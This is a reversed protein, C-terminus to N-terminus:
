HIGVSNFEIIITLSVLFTKTGVKVYKSTLHGRSNNQSYRLQQYPRGHWVPWLHHNTEYYKRRRGVWLLNRPKKNEVQDCESVCWLQYSEEPRPIPGDCLGRGSLVFVTCSVFMWAEPPIRLWSALLREAASGRRLRRPWQAFTIIPVFISVKIKWNPPQAHAAVEGRLPKIDLFAPLHQAPFISSHLHTKFSALPRFPSTAGHM